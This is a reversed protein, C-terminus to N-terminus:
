LLRRLLTAVLGPAYRRVAPALAVAIRGAAGITRTVRATQLRIALTAERADDDDLGPTNIAVYEFADDAQERTFWAGGAEILHLLYDHLLAAGDLRDRDVGFLGAAVSAAGPFTPGDWRFGAPVVVEPIDLISTPLRYGVAHEVQRWAAATTSTVWRTVIDDHVGRVSPAVDVVPAVAYRDSGLIVPGRTPIRDTM